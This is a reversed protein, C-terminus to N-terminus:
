GIGSANLLFGRNQANRANRQPFIGFSRDRDLNASVGDGASIRCVNDFRRESCERVCGILGRRAHRRKPVTVGRISDKILQDSAPYRAQSLLHCWLFGRPDRVDKDALTRLM